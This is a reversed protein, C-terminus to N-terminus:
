RRKKMQEELQANRKGILVCYAVLQRPTLKWVADFAGGWCEILAAIAQAYSESASQRTSSGADASIAHEAGNGSRRRFPRLGAAYDVFRDAGLIAGSAPGAIRRSRDGM